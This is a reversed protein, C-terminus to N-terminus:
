VRLKGQIRRLAIARTNGSVLRLRCELGKPVFGLFLGGRRILWRGFVSRDYLNEDLIWWGFDGSTGTGEAFTRGQICSHGLIFRLESVGFTASVLDSCRCCRRLRASKHRPRLLPPDGQGESRLIICGRRVTNAAHFVRSVAAALVHTEARTSTM